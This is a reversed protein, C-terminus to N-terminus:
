RAVFELLLGCAEEPGVVLSARDESDYRVGARDFHRRARNADEIRLSAAVLAPPALADPDLEPHLAAAEAPTAFLISASGVRASVVGDTRGVAGDGFLRACTGVVSEPEGVVATVSAIGTATNPHRLWAPRRVLEPSLHQCLFMPVQPTAAPGLQVLNFRPMVTGEPLDLARALPRVPEPELGAAALERYAAEADSTALALGIPGDGREAIRAEISRAPQSPDVVGILELYDKAFMVCYNGTSWGVHRGRPTLTFGLRAYAARSRELDRAGILLHDIGEIGNAM